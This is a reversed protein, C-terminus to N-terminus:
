IKPKKVKPKEDKNLTSQLVYNMVYSSFFKDTDQNNINAGKLKNGDKSTAYDVLDCALSKILDRKSIDSYYFTLIGKTSNHKFDDISLVDKINQAKKAYKEFAIFFIRLADENKNKSIKNDQSILDIDINISLYHGEETTFFNKQKSVEIKNFLKSFYQEEKSAIKSLDIGKFRKDWGKQVKELELLPIDDKKKEKIVTYFCKAAISDDKPLAALSVMTWFTKATSISQKQIADLIVQDNKPFYDGNKIFRTYAALADGHWSHNNLQMEYYYALNFKNNQKFFQFLEDQLKANGLLNRNFLTNLESINAGGNKENKRNKIYGALYQNEYKEVLEAINDIDKNTVFFNTTM